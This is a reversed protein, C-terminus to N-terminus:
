TAFIRSKTMQLFQIIKGDLLRLNISLFVNIHTLKHTEQTLKNTVELIRIKSFVTEKYVSILKVSFDGYEIVGGEHLPFYAECKHDGSERKEDM